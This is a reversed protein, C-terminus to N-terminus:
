DERSDSLLLTFLAMRVAVGNTVQDLIISRDSDAVAPSMEVGRNIPGPHMIVCDKRLLSFISSDLGFVRAYERESPFLAMGQREKQIRLAMVVDADRVAEHINYVVKCGLTEIHPPIMTAPGCVTVRAGMKSFGIIDSHAVRSHAIDGIITINLGDIRGFHERVSMMDLLAQSPHENIGDGANIVASDIHKALLHPAGSMSHRMVIIDPKMAEINKATDILTEGKVVSSTSASISVTDASLRKAALEFSLKTRTSPEFFLNVITRGRLPPVKKIPRELIEKLSDATDLIFSIEDPSLYTIGLIHRNNLKKM